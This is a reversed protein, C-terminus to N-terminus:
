AATEQEAKVLRQHSDHLKDLLFAREIRPLEGFQRLIRRVTAMVKADNDM